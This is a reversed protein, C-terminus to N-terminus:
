DEDDESRFERLMKSLSRAPLPPKLSQQPQHNQRTDVTLHRLTRRMDEDQKNNAKEAQLEDFLEDLMDIARGSNASTSLSLLPAPPTPAATQSTVARGIQKDLEGKVHALEDPTLRSKASKPV